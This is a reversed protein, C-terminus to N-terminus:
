GFYRQMLSKKMLELKDLSQQITLKSKDTQEVFTSFQNQLEIPPLMLMYEGIGKQTIMPQASGANLSWMDKKTENMIFYTRFYFPNITLPRLILVCPNITAEGIDKEVLGVKGITNGRQTFILDNKQLMIEPSEEYKERSLYVPATLDICGSETLHTAGLVLPGSERLDDKKYGKWGVRGRVEAVNKLLVMDWGKENGKINGFMEVFRSKVLDDLKQLQKKRLAILDSIKHFISTINKQESLSPLPIEKNLLEKTGLRPMKAGSTKSIAWTVFSDSKLYEALYERTLLQTDPLLPLMESTAYGEIEPLVVKNLNPRLKSYLVVKTNFHIISGNLEEKTVYNYNIVAGTQQEVMDLNLLWNRDLAPADSTAIQIVDGLKVKM